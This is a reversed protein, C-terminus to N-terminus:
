DTEKEPTTTPPTEEEGIIVGELFQKHREQLYRLADSESASHQLHEQFFQLRAKNEEIVEAWTKIGITIQDTKYILRRREDPGGKIEQRAYDNLENSLV